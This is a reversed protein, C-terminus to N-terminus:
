MFCFSVSIKLGMIQLLQWDILWDYMEPNNWQINTGSWLQCIILIFRSLCQCGQKWPHGLCLEYYDCGCLQHNHVKKPSTKKLLSVAFNQDFQAIKYCIYASKPTSKVPRLLTATCWCQCTHPISRSFWKCISKRIDKSKTICYYLINWSTRCYSSVLMAMSDCLHNLTTLNKSWSLPGDFNHLQCVLPIKILM